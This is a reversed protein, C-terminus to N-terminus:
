DIRLQSYMEMEYELNDSTKASMFFRAPLVDLERPPIDEIERCDGWNVFFFAKVKAVNYVTKSATRKNEGSEIFLSIDSPISTM